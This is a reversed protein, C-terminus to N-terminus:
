RRQFHARSAPQGRGGITSACHVVLRDCYTVTEHEGGNDLATGKRTTSVWQLIAFEKPFNSECKGVEAEAPEVAMEAFNEPLSQLMKEILSYDSLRSIDAILSDTSIAQAASPHGDAAPILVELLHKLITM